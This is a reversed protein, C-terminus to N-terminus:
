KRENARKELQHQVWNMHYGKWKAYNILDKETKLHWYVWGLKYGKAQAIVELKKFDATKIEDQIQQYTMKALEAIVEAQKEKETKVFEHGCYNCTMVQAPLMAFCSPCDKVPAVGDRKKKKKLSWAREQEWFGHRQINNGFDLIAFENKVNPIVRSGRGCMQLFLSVSKTARYLIVVEISPEDFGANLIGVNSILANPTDKFWQLIRKREATPTEGDIHEIPL